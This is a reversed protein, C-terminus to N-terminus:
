GGGGAELEGGGGGGMGRHARCLLVLSTWHQLHPPLLVRLGAEAPLRQQRGVAGAPSVGGAVLYQGATGQEKEAHDPVCNQSVLERTAVAAPTRFQIGPGCM